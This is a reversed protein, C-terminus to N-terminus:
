AGSAEILFYITKSVAAYLNSSGDAQEASSTDLTFSTSATAWTTATRDPNDYPTSVQTGYTPSGCNDIGTILPAASGSVALSVETEGATTGADTCTVGSDDPPTPTGATANLVVGNELAGSLYASIQDSPWTTGYLITPGDVTATEGQRVTGFAIPSTSSLEIARFTQVTYTVSVSADATGAGDVYDASAFGGGLVIMAGIGLGVGARKLRRQM